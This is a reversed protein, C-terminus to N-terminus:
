GAPRSRSRYGETILNQPQRFSEGEKLSTIEDRSFVHVTGPPDDLAVADIVIVRDYGALYAPLDLSPTGLDELTVDPPLLANSALYRVVGPGSGDDGMLIKGIGYVATKM